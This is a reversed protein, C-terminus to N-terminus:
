DPARNRAIPNKGSKRRLFVRHGTRTLVKIRVQNTRKDEIFYQSKGVIVANHRFRTLMSAFSIGFVICAREASEDM